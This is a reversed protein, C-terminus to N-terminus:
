HLTFSIPLRVIVDVAKGDKIAPKFKFRKITKIASDDFIGAVEEPETKVVEPEQPNGDKDVVFRLTIKGEIGKQRAAFPYIPPYKRIPRPPQDVENLNFATMFLSDSINFDSTFGGIKITGGMDAGLSARPFDIRARQTRVRKTKNQQKELRKEEVKREQEVEPTPPPPRRGSILIAKQTKKQLHGTDLKTLLPLGMFLLVTVLLAVLIGIPFSAIPNKYTEM